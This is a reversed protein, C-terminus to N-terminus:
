GFWGVLWGVLRGLSFVMIAIVREHAHAFERTLFPVINVIHYKGTSYILFVRSRSHGLLSIKGDKLLERELQRCSEAALFCLRVLIIQM